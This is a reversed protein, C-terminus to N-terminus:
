ETVFNVNERAFHLETFQPLDPVFILMKPSNENIIFTNNMQWPLIKFLESFAQLILPKM